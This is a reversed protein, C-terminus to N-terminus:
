VEVKAKRKRPAVADAPRAKVKPAKGPEAKIAKAGKVAKAAAAKVPKAKAAPAKLAEAKAPKAKAAAPERAKPAAKLQAGATLMQALEGEARSWYEADRGFPRGDKEWLYYAQERITAEDYSANSARPM